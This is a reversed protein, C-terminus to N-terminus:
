AVAKAAQEVEAQERGEDADETDDDLDEAGIEDMRALLANWFREPIKKQDRLRKLSAYPNEILIYDVRGSPGEKIDIFGLEHLKEIRSLWTREAREGSFGSFFAMDRPQNARVFGNNYTRCWLEFYTASVPQRKTLDDLIRLIAPM